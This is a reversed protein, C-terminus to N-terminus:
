LPLHPQIASINGLNNEMMKIPDIYDLSDDMERLGFKDENISEDLHDDIKRIEIKNFRSALESELQEKNFVKDGFDIKLEKIYANTTKQAARFPM